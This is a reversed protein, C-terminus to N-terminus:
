TFHLGGHLLLRVTKEAMVVRIRRIGDAEECELARVLFYCKHSKTVRM